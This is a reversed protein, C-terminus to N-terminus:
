SLNQLKVKSLRLLLSNSVVSVSSFAMALGAFEPKLYLGFWPYFLGAALPIGLLNYFFAWFLNQKIKTLTKRGLLIARAIDTLNDGVIVLDGTEKAVDTGGGIAIGIDAQALAPADNIGDGVMGVHYGARQYRKVVNQKHEPLVEAETQDISLLKAVRAVSSKRDGSVVVPLIGLKRLHAVFGAADQKIEDALCVIGQLQGSVAVFITSSAEPLVPLSDTNVSIAHKELLTLNGCLVPVGNVSGYLGHGGSEVVQDPSVLQLHLRQAEAVIGLALPHSSASELSAALGFWDDASVGAVPIIEECKFHGNTVTGTKDLLLVDLKSIQELVSARKFLIGLELGVSSGVMIATPTALGLACPCAVVVVAVAMQFAFLFDKGALLWGAFTLLSLVIVVPVFVGSIRDALRQIPPKDGQAHEVMRVIQALVAQEGVSTAQVTLQGGHNVTAGIVKAGVEKHVPVSEGTIMSEDVASEGSIVKGDVPIKEGPRVVVLDGPQLTDVDVQREVGDVVQVATAPQLQLLNKLAASARGKARAELWKGFRIFLILMASTEFFVTAGPGLAGLYALVSYGYAATIGLAVLVDMNAGGSRLSKYASGYFSLGATFQAVSALLGIITMTASGFVPFYMLGMIPVACGAALLVLHKEQPGEAVLSDSDRVAKFGANDVAEYIQDATVMAPAFVVQASNTALNVAVSEVGSVQRVRKEVTAVCSACHMGSVPFRLIETINGLPVQVSDETAPVSGDALSKEQADCNFGAEELDKIIQPIPQEASSFSIDAVADSLSVAVGEVASFGEIIQTVRAVCKSCKMGNVPLIINHM